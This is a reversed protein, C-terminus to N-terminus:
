KTHNQMELGTSVTGAIKVHWAHKTATSSGSIDFGAM